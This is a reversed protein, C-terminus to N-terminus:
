KDEDEEDDEEDAEGDDASRKAQAPAIGTREQIMKEEQKGVADRWGTTLANIQAKAQDIADAIHGLSHSQVPISLQSQSPLAKGEGTIPPSAGEPLRFSWQVKVEGM